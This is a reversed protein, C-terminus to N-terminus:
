ANRADIVSPVLYDLLCEDCYVAQSGARRLWRFLEREPVARVTDRSALTVRCARM